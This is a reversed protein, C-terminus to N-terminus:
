EFMIYQDTVESSKDRFEVHYIASKPKIKTDDVMVYKIKKCLTNIKENDESFDNDSSVIIIEPHESSIYWEQGIEAERIRADLLEEEDYFIINDISM